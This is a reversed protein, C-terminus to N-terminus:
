HTWNSSVLIDTQTIGEKCLQEPQRLSFPLVKVTHRHASAPGLQRMNAVLERAALLIHADHGYVIDVVHERHHVPPQRCADRREEVDGVLQGLERHLRLLLLNTKAGGRAPEPKRESCHCNFRKM